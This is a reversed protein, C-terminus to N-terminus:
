PERDEGAQDPSGYKHEGDVRHPGYLSPHFPIPRVRRKSNQGIGWWEHVADAYQVDTGVELGRETVRTVLSRELPGPVNVYWRWGLWSLIRNWWGRWGTTIPRWCVGGRRRLRIMRRTM